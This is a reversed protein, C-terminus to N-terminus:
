KDSKAMSLAQEFAGNLFSEVAQQQESAGAPLDTGLLVAAFFGETNWTGKAPLAPLTGSPSPKPWPTVYFYPTSFRDDGPSFGVNVSPADEGTVEDDLTKLAALDFHHPWGRVEGASIREAFPTLVLAANSFWAELAGLNTGDAEFARGEGAPASPLDHKPRALDGKLGRDRVMAGLWRQADELTRGRLLFEDEIVDGDAVSISLSGLRLGARLPRGSTAVPRSQLTHHEANWLLNTHSFDDKEDLLASISAPVQAAWHAALRADDLRAARAPDVEIFTWEAM